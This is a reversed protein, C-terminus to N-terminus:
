ELTFESGEGILRDLTQFPGVDVEQQFPAIAHEGRTPKVVDESFLPLLVLLRHGDFRQPCSCQASEVPKWSGRHHRDAQKKTTKGPDEDRDPRLERRPQSKDGDDAALSPRSPSGSGTVWSPSPPKRTTRPPEHLLRAPAQGRSDPVPLRGRAPM